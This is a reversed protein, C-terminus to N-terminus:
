RRSVYRGRLRLSSPSFSRSLSNGSSSMSATMSWQVRSPYRSSRLNATWHAELLTLSRLKPLRRISRSSLPLPTSRSVMLAASSATKLGSVSSPVALSAASFFIFVKVDASRSVRRLRSAPNRSLFPNEKSIMRLTRRSVSYDYYSMVEARDLMFEFDSAIERLTALSAFSIKVNRNSAWFLQREKRVKRRQSFIPEKSELVQSM